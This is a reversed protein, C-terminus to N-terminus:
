IGIGSLTSMINNIISTIKPHSTEFNSVSDKLPDMFDDFVDQERSDIEIELDKVLANLKDQSDSDGDDLNAIEAKLEELSEKVSERM